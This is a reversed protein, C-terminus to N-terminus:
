QSLLTKDFSLIESDRKDEEDQLAQASAGQKQINATNVAATSEEDTAITQQLRANQTLLTDMQSNLLQLSGQTGAVQPIQSEYGQVKGYTDSVGDMSTKINSLMSEVHSQMGNANTIAQQVYQQPTLGKLSMDTFLDQTNAKAQNLNGVLQTVESKYSEAAQIDKATNPALTSLLAPNLQMAERVMLEYQNITQIASQATNVNTAMLQGENVLQTLETSGGNGAVTGANIMTASLGFLAVAALTCRVATRNANRM